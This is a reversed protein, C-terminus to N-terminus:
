VVEYWMKSNYVKFGQRQFFGKSDSNFSWFDVEISKIKNKRAVEVSTQFLNRGISQQRFEEHVVIQHIYIRKREFKFANESIIDLTFWIYGAPKMNKYAIYIFNNVKKFLTEFFVKAESQSDSPTKFIQPHNKHHKEQVFSNLLVLEQIHAKEAKQIEM